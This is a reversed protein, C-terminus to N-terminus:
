AVASNRPKEPPVRVQSLLIAGAGFLFILSLMGFRPNGTAMGALSMLMPGIIAAFKGMMNYFGFFQGSKGAPILGAFLSRSLSQVGGQVLGVTVALAYFHAATEMFYGFICVGTYVALGILIGTKAGLKEGIRGFLIAAPFGIFQTLLLAKILSDAPLNLASGYDVGMRIVTDVGDIYLWYGILFTFAAKHRRLDRFTDRLQVLGSRVQHRLGTASDTSRVEPVFLMLPVTFVAWWVAVSLFSWRIAESRDALGFLEPRTVVVINLAFLLGGGIYGMGYGLASVLDLKDKDAVSLLLSDYFINSGSFGMGALAYLSLALVWQGGTAFHLGVTMVVGLLTFFLLFRKQTGCRDALAGLIPALLATAIGAISNAVSLRFTSVTEAAGASWFEKNLIPVFGATVITVFASNAWDFLAWPLARRFWPKIM